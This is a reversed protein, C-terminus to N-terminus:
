FMHAYMSLFNGLVYLIIINVKAKINCIDEKQVWWM